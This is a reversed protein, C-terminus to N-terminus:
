SVTIASNTSSDIIGSNFVGGTILGGNSVLIGSDYAGVSANQALSISGDIRSSAVVIGDGDEEVGGDDPGHGQRGGEGKQPSPRRPAPLGEGRHHLGRCQSSTPKPTM